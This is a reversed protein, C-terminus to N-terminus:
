GAAHREIGAVHLEVVADVLAAPAVARAKGGFGALWAAIEPVGAARFSLRVGGGELEEVHQTDHWVRERALHAVEASLEVVIDHVQGHLVGFGYRTFQDVDFEARREFTEELLAAAAIRQIAFTRFGQRQRCYGVLYARGAHYWLLHPEVTRDSHESGPSAYSLKLCQEKGIADEVVDLTAGHEKLRAPAALTARLQTRLESVWQRGQPTLHAALRQRLEDLSQFLTSESLPAMLDETLLLSLVEAPQLPFGLGSGRDARARDIFVRGEESAVPFGAQELHQVDRYVTRLTCSDELAHTLEQATMGRRANDLLRLITLLRVV